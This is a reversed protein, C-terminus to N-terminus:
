TDVTYWVLSMGKHRRPPQSDPVSESRMSSPNSRKPFDARSLVKGRFKNVIYVVDGDAVMGYLKLMDSNSHRICGHSASKRIQGPTNTGHLDIEFKNLYIAAVGLPNKHTQNYPPVVKQKPDISKPPLWKPYMEKKVVTYRGPPTPKETTGIANSITLTRVIREGQLQLAFSSHSGKDVIVVTPDGKHFGNMPLMGTLVYHNHVFPAENGAQKADSNSDSEQKKEPETRDAKVAATGAHRARGAPVTALTHAIDFERTIKPESKFEAMAVSASLMYVTAAAVVPLLRKHV